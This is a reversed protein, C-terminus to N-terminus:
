LKKKWRIIRGFFDIINQIKIWFLKRQLMCVNLFTIVGKIKRERGESKIDNKGRQFSGKCYIWRRSLCVCGVSVSVWLVWREQQEVLVWEDINNEAVRLVKILERLWTVSSLQSYYDETVSISFTASLNIDSIMVPHNWDFSPLIEKTYSKKNRLWKSMDASSKMRSDACICHCIQKNKSPNTHVPYLFDEGLYWHTHYLNCPSYHSDYQLDPYLYFFSVFFKSSNEINERRNSYWGTCFINAVM